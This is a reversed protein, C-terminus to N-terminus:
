VSAVNTRYRSGIEQYVHIGVIMRKERPYRERARRYVAFIVAAADAPLPGGAPHLLADLLEQREVADPLTSLNWIFSVLDLAFRYEDEHDPLRLAATFPEAIDVLLESMGPPANSGAAASRHQRQASRRLKRRTRGM